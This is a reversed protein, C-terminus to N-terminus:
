SDAHQMALAIREALYEYDIRLPGILAPDVEFAAILGKALDRTRGELDSPMIGRRMSSEWRRIAVPAMQEPHGAVPCGEDWARRITTIVDPLAKDSVDEGM